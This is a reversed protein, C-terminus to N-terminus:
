GRRINWPYAGTGPVFGSLGTRYASAIFFQGLPLIPANEFSERQIVDALRKQEAETEALLWQGAAEEVRPNAYWGFWGGSGLGRLTANVAPNIISV